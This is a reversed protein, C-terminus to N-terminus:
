KRAKASAPEKGNPSPEPPKLAVLEAELAEAKANLEGVMRMLAVNKVKEAMLPDSQMVSAMDQPTVSINMMGDAM